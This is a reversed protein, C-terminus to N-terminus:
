PEGRTAVGKPDFGLEYALLFLANCAAHALHPLGSKQDTKEGLKWKVLHRQLAAFYRAEFDDLEQWNYTGYEAAGATVVEAVAEVARWPLLDFAVKAGDHKIGLKPTRV